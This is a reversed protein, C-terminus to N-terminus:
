DTCLERKLEELPRTNGKVHQKRAERMKEIFEEDQSLLYDELDDQLAELEGAVNLIKEILSAPIQVTKSM